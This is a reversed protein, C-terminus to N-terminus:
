QGDGTQQLWGQKRGWLAREGKPGTVSMRGDMEGELNADVTWAYPLPEVSCLFSVNM